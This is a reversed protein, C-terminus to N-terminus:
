KAPKAETKEPAPSKAPGAMGMGQRQLGEMVMKAGAHGKDALEGAGTVLTRFQSQIKQAEQLANEQSTKVQGLNGREGLLSFTQFGFYIVLAVLIIVMPLNSNTAAPQSVGDNEDEIDVNDSNDAMTVESRRRSPKHIPRPDPKCTSAPRPSCAWSRNTM